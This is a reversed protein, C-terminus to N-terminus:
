WRWGAPANEHRSRAALRRDEGIRRRTRLKERAGSTGDEQDTRLAGAHGRRVDCARRSQQHRDKAPIWVRDLLANLLRRVLNAAYLHPSEVAVASQIHGPGHPRDGSSTPSIPNFSLAAARSSRRGSKQLVSVGYRGRGYAM